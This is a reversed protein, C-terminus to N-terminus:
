HIQRIKSLAFNEVIFSLTKQVMEDTNKLVQRLTEPNEGKQARKAVIQYVEALESLSDLVEALYTPINLNELGGWFGELFGAEIAAYRNLATEAVNKSTEKPMKLKNFGILAFMEDWLGMFFKFFLEAEGKTELRPGQGNEFFSAIVDTPRLNENPSCIAGAFRMKVVDLPTQCNYHALFKKFKDDGIYENQSQM